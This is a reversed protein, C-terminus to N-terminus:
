SSRSAEALTELLCIDPQDIVTPIFVCSNMRHRGRVLHKTHPSGKQGDPNINPHNDYRKPEELVHRHSLRASFIRKTTKMCVSTTQPRIYVLAFLGRVAVKGVPFCDGFELHVNVDWSRRLHWDLLGQHSEGQVPELPGTFGGNERRGKTTPSEDDLASLPNLNSHYGLLEM